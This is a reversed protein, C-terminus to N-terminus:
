KMRLNAPDRQTFECAPIDCQCAFVESERRAMSPRSDTFNTARRRSPGRMEFSSTIVAAQKLAAVLWPRNNSRGRVM